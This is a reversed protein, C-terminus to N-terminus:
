NFHEAPGRLPCCLWHQMSLSLNFTLIWSWPSYVPVYNYLVPCLNFSLFMFVTGEHYRLMGDPFLANAPYWSVNKKNNNNTTTTNTKKERKWVVRLYCTKLYSETSPALFLSCKVTLWGGGLRWCGRKWTGRLSVSVARGWINELSAFPIHDSRSLGM